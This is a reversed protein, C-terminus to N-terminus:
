SKSKRGWESLVTYTILITWWWMGNIFPVTEGVLTGLFGLARKSDLLSMKLHSCWIGFTFTAFISIFSSLIWGIFPIFTMFFQATDFVVAVVIMTIGTARDIRPADM